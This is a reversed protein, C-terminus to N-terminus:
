STTTTSATSRTAHVHLAAHRADLGHGVEHRLRARRPVHAAVGDALRDVGRRHDARGPHARYVEENFRRLFTSPRSTRAAATSTRSGSARGQALLRPLADLRRRGRAPRRRPVQRALVARQHAPLQAGRQPRLQLHLQGLRPPLGPAPRRARVPAHRRLLRPRARRDPLAVAGLRPHRRHRAPAPLRDLYMFDQPTGYRSTPAFYGTTQYGWSGYFPHEMLPLFEVHTFGLEQVYDALQPARARPLDLSRNGDEPVRMWSGLHVEYISIPADLANAAQADRWGSPTAGARLRLDWVISATRPPVEHRFASRTPRTSATATSARSSTTSTTTARASAPSSARGSARLQGRTCRLKRAPTGATSTASSRSRKRTRRGSPSTPAPSATRCRRDPARGLKDYLRPPQGRQLPLPRGRDAAYCMTACRCAARERGRHEVREREDQRLM